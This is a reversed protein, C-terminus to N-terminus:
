LWIIFMIRLSTIPLLKFSMQQGLAPFIIVWKINFKKLEINNRFLLLENFLM